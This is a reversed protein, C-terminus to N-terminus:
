LSNAYEFIKKLDNDNKFDIKNKDIFAKVDKSKENFFNVINKNRSVKTLEEKKDNYVIFYNHVNHYVRTIASENYKRSESFKVELHKYLSFKEGKYIEEYVNSKPSNIPVVSPISIIKVPNPGLFIIENIPTHVSIDEKDKPIIINRNDINYKINVSDIFKGDILKVKGLRFDEFLFPSGEYTFGPNTKVAAGNIDNWFGASLHSVQAHTSICAIFLFLSLITKKM